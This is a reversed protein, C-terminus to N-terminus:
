VTAAVNRARGSGDAAAFVKSSNGSRTRPPSNRSRAAAIRTRQTATRNRSRRFFEDSIIPQSGRGELVAKCKLCKESNIEAKIIQSGADIGVPCGKNHITFFEFRKVTPVVFLVGSQLRNFVQLLDLPYGFALRPYCPIPVVLNPIIKIFGSAQNDIVTNLVLDTFDNDTKVDPEFLCNIDPTPIVLVENLNGVRVQSELQLRQALSVTNGVDFLFFGVGRLSTKEVPVFQWNVVGIFRSFIFERPFPNFAPQISRLM